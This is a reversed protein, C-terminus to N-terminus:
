CHVVCVRWAIASSGLRVQFTYAGVRAVRLAASASQGARVRRTGSAVVRGGRLARVRAIGAARALFRVTVRYGGRIKAVRPSGVRALVSVRVFTATVARATDLRVSCTRKAGTCAGTWGRFRMGTAPAATLVVTAGTEPRVVCVRRPGRGACEGLISRVTGRGLVNITLPTTTGGTFVASVNRSVNM